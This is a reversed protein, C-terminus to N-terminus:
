AGRREHKCSRLEVMITASITRTHYSLTTLYLHGRLLLREGPGPGCFPHGRHVGSLRAWGPVWGGVVVVGDFGVVGAELPTDGAGAVAAHDVDAVQDFAFVAFVYLDILCHRAATAAIASLM